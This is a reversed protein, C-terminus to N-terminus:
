LKDEIIMNNWSSIAEQSTNKYSGTLECDNCKVFIEDPDCSYVEINNSGCICTEINITEKLDMEIWNGNEDKIETKVQQLAKEVKSEIDDLNGIRKSTELRLWKQFKDSNILKKFARERNTKQNREEQCTAMAGSDRHKIRCATAVKNRNQGGNGTGNYYEVDFDKKTVSFLLEKM